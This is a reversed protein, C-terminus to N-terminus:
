RRRGRRGSRTRNPRITSQASIDRDLTKSREAASTPTGPEIPKPEPLTVHYRPTHNRAFEPYWGFLPFTGGFGMVLFQQGVQIISSFIWYLFLGAPLMGGYLISILPLFYAMQRQVKINPDDKMRPDLPALMQRSAVFQIGSSIIALISIGFGLIALGTTTPEPYSWNIGFAIPNLCPNTVQGAANFIPAPACVIGLPEALNVGFVQLMPTIDYNTLGQSIVSYMPILLGMTLLAPLCGGAPNIGRQKYYEQTAAQQKVRDGKYKRQIDKIEPQLLQTQRSSVLQKKTIPTTAVKLIVTLLIIAIAINGESWIVKTATDLVVLVIFLAQFIPTFLWALLDMPNGTLQAPALPAQSFSPSAGGSASPTTVGPVCASVVLAIVVLFLLPALRVLLQQLRIM